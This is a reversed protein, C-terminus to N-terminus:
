GIISPDFRLENQDITSLFAAFHDLSAQIRACELGQTIFILGFAERDNPIIDIHEPEYVRHRVGQIVLGRDPRRLPIIGKFRLILDGHEHMIGTLWVSFSSWRMRHDFILRFSSISNHHGDIPLTDRRLEIDGRRRSLISPEFDRSYIIESFPNIESIISETERITESDYIDLKTIVLLDACSIQNRAEPFRELLSCDSLPEIATICRAIVIYESLAGDDLITGIIRAPDSIGSTEIIIDSLNDDNRRERDTLIDLLVKRIEDVPSCCACIGAMARTDAITSRIFTHDIAITGYENILVAYADKNELQGLLKRLLTSKGSGLFGTLIHLRIKSRLRM